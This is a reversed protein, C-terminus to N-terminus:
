PAGTLDREIFARPVTAPAPGDHTFPVVADGEGVRWAGQWLGVVTRAGGLVEAGLCLQYRGGVLMAPTGPVRQAIDGLEGGPLAVTVTAPTRPGAGRLTREVRLETFTIIRGGVWAARASLATALVVLDSAAAVEATSREPMSTARSPLALVLAVCLLLPCAAIRGARPPRAACRGTLVESVRSNM